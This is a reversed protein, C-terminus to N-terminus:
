KFYVTADLLICVYLYAAETQFLMLTEPSLETSVTLHCSALTLFNPPFFDIFLM